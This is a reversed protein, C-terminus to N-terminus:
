AGETGDKRLCLLLLSYIHVDMHHACANQVLLQVECGNLWCKKVDYSIELPYM